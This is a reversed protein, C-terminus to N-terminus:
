GHVGKRELGIFEAVRAVHDSRDYEDYLRQRLLFAPLANVNEFLMTRGAHESSTFDWIANMLRNKQDASAGAMSLYKQLYENLEANAFDAESFRMVLGQGCLEQLLHVMAPYDDLGYSRVAAIISLDPLLIGGVKSALQEAALTGARLTQAYQILRGVQDRVTPIQGSGLTDVLLQVLGVMLEAKVTLRNLVHWHEGQSMINFSEASHLDKAGISFVRDHPVFVNDFVVFADIEDGRSLVPHDYRSSGPRNVGERAILKLGPSAIPLCCWFQEDERLGYTWISGVLLDNAQPSYSGVARAGSIWIGDDSRKTIRLVASRDDGAKASRSRDGQPEVVCGALHIANKQAYEIYSRLNGKHDPSLRDFESELALMGIATWPIIDPSRGFLTGTKWAIYECAQRRQVLDEPTHPIQWFIGARAGDPREFTLIKDPGELFQDDYIEASQEILTRTLDHTTVDDIREGRFWVERGDRLRAKYEDGSVLYSQRADPSAERVLQETM